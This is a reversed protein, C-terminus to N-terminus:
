ELMEDLGMQVFIEKVYENCSIMHFRSTDELSQMLQIMLRIGVSTIYTMKACDIIIEDYKVKKLTDFVYDRYNKITNNDLRGEIKLEVNKHTIDVLVEGSKKAESLSINESADMKQPMLKLALVTIDDYQTVKGRYEDTIDIVAECCDHASAGYVSLREELYTDGMMENKENCTETVGDTYIILADDENLVIKDSRYDVNDIIGVIKNKSACEIKHTGNKSVILAYGHGSNVYSVERTRINVIALFMTIFYGSNNNRLLQENLKRMIYEPNKSLQVLGRFVSLARAAFISSSMGHGSVDGVLVAINEKDIRYFDYIDGAMVEASKMCAYVDVGAGASEFDQSLIDKQLQAMASMELKMKMDNLKFRDNEDKEIVQYMFITFAVLYEPVFYIDNIYTLLIVAFSILVFIKLIRKQRRSINGKIVFDSLIIIPIVSQLITLFVSENEVCHGDETMHYMVGTWRSSLIMVIFLALSLTCFAAILKQVRNKPLYEQSYYVTLILFIYLLVYVLVCCLEEYAQMQRNGELESAAFEMDCCLIGTIIMRFLCKYDRKSSRDSDISIFFMFLIGIAAFALHAGDELNDYAKVNANGFVCLSIIVASFLGVMVAALIDKNIKIKKTKSFYTSM